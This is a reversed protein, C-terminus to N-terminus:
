GIGTPQNLLVTLTKKCDNLHKSLTQEKYYLQKHTLKPEHLNDLSWTSNQRSNGQETQLTSLYQAPLCIESRLGYPSPRNPTTSFTRSSTSGTRTEKPDKKSRKYDDPTLEFNKKEERRNVRYTEGRPRSRSDLYRQSSSPGPLSYPQPAPTDGLIRMSSMPMPQETYEPNTQRPLIPNKSSSRPMPSNNITSTPPTWSTRTPTPQNLQNRSNKSIIHRDKYEQLM